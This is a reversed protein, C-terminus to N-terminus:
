TVESKNQIFLNYIFYSTTAALISRVFSVAQDNLYPKLNIPFGFLGTHLSPEFSLTILIWCGLITLIALRLKSERAYILLLIPSIWSIWQPHFHTLGYFLLLPVAFWGVQSMKEPHDKKIWAFLGLLAFFIVVSQTASVPIHAEWLKSSQQASLAFMRFGPSTLIYPLIIISYTAVGIVVNKWSTKPVFPLLFLPFPKFAASIGLFVSALFPHNKQSAYVAALIGLAIFIDFQGMLFASHIIPINFAWLLVIKSKMSEPAIKMLLILLGIDALLYPTKLIFILWPLQSSQEAIDYNTEFNNFLNWDIIPNVLTLWIAHTWYTMPGYVFFDDGYIKVIQSNRPQHSIYDYMTLLASKKVMLWSGLYHGHLDPHYTFPMSILRLVLGVCFFLKISNSIKKM